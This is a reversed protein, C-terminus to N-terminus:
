GMFEPFGAVLAEVEERVEAPLPEVLWASGYKYGRDVLLGKAELVECAATYGHRWDPNATKHADIAAQQARTGAKLCNLHWRDWIEILRRVKPGSGCLRGIEYRNQGGSYIDTRRLNWVNGRMSFEDMDGAPELDVTRVSNINKRPKIEIEVTIPCGAQYGSGKRTKGLLIHRRFLTTM